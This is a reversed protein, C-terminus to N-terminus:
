AVAEADQQDIEALVRRGTDTLTAVGGFLTVLDWNVMSDLTRVTAWNGGSVTRRRRGSVMVIQAGAALERLTQEEAYNMRSEVTVTSM